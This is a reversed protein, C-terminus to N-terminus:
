GPISRPTSFSGIGRGARAPRQLGTEFPWVQSVRALRIDCRLRSLYPIGVLSQSGVSGAGFLKWVPQTKKARKETLRKEPFTTEPKGRFKKPSLTASTFGKPCGWFPYSMGSLQRNLGSAILFRNSRNKEDDKILRRLLDWVQEWRPGQDLEFGLKTAFPSPYGYPFDFGVLTFCGRAVNEALLNAIEIAAQNRTSPNAVYSSSPARTVMCYWISDTGQRPENGAGWDV